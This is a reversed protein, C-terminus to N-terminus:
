LRPRAPNGTRDIVVATRGSIKGSLREVSGDAARISDARGHTTDRVGIARSDPAHAQKARGRDDAVHVRRDGVLLDTDKPRYRRSGTTPPRRRVHTRSRAGGVAESPRSRFVGAKKWKPESARFVGTVRGRPGPSPFAM